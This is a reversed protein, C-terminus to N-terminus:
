AVRHLEKEIWALLEKAWASHIRNRLTEMVRSLIGAYVQLKAEADM